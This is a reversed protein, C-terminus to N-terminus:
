SSRRRGHGHSSALALALAQVPSLAGQRRRRAGDAHGGVTEPSACTATGPSTWSSRRAAPRQPWTLADPAEAGPDARLPLPRARRHGRLM